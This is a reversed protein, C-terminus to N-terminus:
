ELDISDENRSRFYKRLGDRLIINDGTLVPIGQWDFRLDVDPDFRSAKIIEHRSMYGRQKKRGHWHHLILGPVYGINKRVHQHCRNSFVELRKVYGPSCDNPFPLGAFAIAMHYDASGTVLWDILGGLEEYLERRMAWAYGFHCRPARLDSNALGYGPDVKTFDGDVWAACFSKDVNNGWENPVVDYKPTLDVSHSWPQIVKYHQLAHITEQAWNPRVFEIDADVWAVYKWDRPLRRIGINILSEKLWLESDEDGRVQIHFPNGEETVEFPREGFAHEVIVLQIGPTHEMREVFERFLQYRIEFRVPNSVVAILYLTADVDGIGKKIRSM